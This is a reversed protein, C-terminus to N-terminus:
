AWARIEAHLGQPDDIGQNRSRRHVRQVYVADPVYTLQYGRRHARLAAAWDEWARFQDPFGGVDEFVDRRWVTGICCPNLHEIDRHGVDILVEGRNDGRVQALSQYRLDGEAREMAALYGARFWDGDADLFTVYASDAAAVGANRAEALTEGHSCIIPADVTAVLERRTQEAKAQWLASGYTGIIVSVDM